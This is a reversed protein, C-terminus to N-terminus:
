FEVPWPDDPTPTRNRIRRYYRVERRSRKEAETSHAALVIEETPNCLDTADKGNYGDGAAFGEQGMIAASLCRLHNAFAVTFTDGDREDELVFRQLTAMEREFSILTSRRKTGFVYKELITTLEERAAAFQQDCREFRLDVDITSPDRLCATYELRFPVFVIAANAEPNAQATDPAGFACLTLAIIATRRMRM